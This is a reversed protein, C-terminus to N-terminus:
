KKDLLWGWLNGDPASQSHIQIYLRGKQLDAIQAPTLDIACSITGAPAHSVTLDFLEPGRVGRTPSRHLKAITAPSALGEFTGNITLRAGSLTASATGSGSVKPQMTLDIPVPSLRARFGGGAPPTKQAQAPWAFGAVCLLVLAARM